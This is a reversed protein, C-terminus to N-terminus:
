RDFAEGRRDQALLTLQRQSELVKCREPGIRFQETLHFVQPPATGGIREGPAGLAQSVRMQERAADLRGQCGRLCSMVAGFMTAFHDLQAGRRSLTSRMKVANMKM